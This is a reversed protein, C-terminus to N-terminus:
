GTRELRNRDGLVATWYSGGNYDFIVWDYGNYKQTSRQTVNYRGLPLYGVVDNFNPTYFYETRANFVVLTYGSVNQM